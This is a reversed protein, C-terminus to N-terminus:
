IRLSPTLNKIRYKGVAGDAYKTLVAIINSSSLWVPIDVFIGAQFSLVSWTVATNAILIIVIVKLTFSQTDIDGSNIKAIISDVYKLIAVGLSSSTLWAPIDIFDGTKISIAAWTISVIAIIMIAVIRLTRSNM